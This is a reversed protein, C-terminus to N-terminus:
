SRALFSLGVNEIKRDTIDEMKGGRRNKGERWSIYRVPTKLYGSLAEETIM